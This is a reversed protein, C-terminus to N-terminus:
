LRGFAHSSTLTPVSPCNVSLEESWLLTLMPYSRWQRVRVPMAWAAHTTTASISPTSSVGNRAQATAVTSLVTWTRIM